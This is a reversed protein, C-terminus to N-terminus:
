NLQRAEIHIDVHGGNARITFSRLEFDRWQGTSRDLFKMQSGPATSIHASSLATRIMDPTLGGPSSIAQQVAAGGAFVAMACVIALVTNKIM